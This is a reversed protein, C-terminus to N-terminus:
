ERCSKALKWHILLVISSFFIFLLSKLLTQFGSRSEAKQAIRFADLRQNTLEKEIPKKDECDKSRCSITKWYTENTQYKTHSYSSMTLTPATVKILSYSGIGLSVVLSIVAAFCVSLAYIELKAKM